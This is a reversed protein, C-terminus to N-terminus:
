SYFCCLLNGLEKPLLKLVWFLVLALHLVLHSLFLYLTWVLHQYFQCHNLSFSILLPFSFVHKILFIFFVLLPSPQYLFPVIIYFQVLFSISFQQLFLLIILPFLTLMERKNLDLVFKYSENTGNFLYCFTSPLCQGSVSIM